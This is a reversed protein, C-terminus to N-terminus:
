AGRWFRRLRRRISDRSDRCASDRCTSHIKAHHELDHCPHDQKTLSSAVSTFCTSGAEVFRVSPVILLSTQHHVNFRSLMSHPPIASLIDRGARCSAFHPPTRCERIVCYKSILRRNQCVRRMFNDPGIMPAFFSRILGFSYTVSHVLYHQVRVFHFLQL